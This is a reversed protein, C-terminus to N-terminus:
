AGPPAARQLLAAIREEVARLDGRAAREFLDSELAERYVARRAAPDSIARRARERLEKLADLFAEYEPGVTRELRERLRRALAPSGGATAIAVTLDGRRLTAPVHFTSAAADDAVNVLGGAAVVARATAHNAAAEDTAAFVLFAGTVDGPEVRRRQWVLRGSAALAALGPTAAPSVLEVQAGCELLWLVKREAVAGGGVVLCRRHVLDVMIPYLKRDAIPMSPVRFQRAATAAATM